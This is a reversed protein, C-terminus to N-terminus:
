ARKRRWWVVAAWIFLVIPAVIVGFFILATFQAAPVELKPDKDESKRLSIQSDDRTLWAVANGHLDQSRGFPFLSNAMMSTSGFVVLRSKSSANESVAALTLPGKKDSGDLKVVGTAIAKFDTEGWASPSSKVLWETKWGTSEAPATVALPRSIAFPTPDKLDKVIPQATNYALGLPYEPPLGAPKSLPDLILANEVKIGYDGLFKNWEPNRDAGKPDTDLTVYLSGGNKLYEGLTKMEGEFFPRTPGFVAVIACAPDVKSETQLNIEKWTNGLKEILDRANSLGMEGSDQLSREGHQSTYCFVKAVSKELKLLENTIKTEDPNEVPVMRGKYYIVLTNETRVNASRARQAEKAVDVYETTVKRGSTQYNALLTKIAEWHNPRGFLSLKLEDGLASVAKKSQDTLSHKQSRTFDFSKPFKTAIFNLTVLLCIVLITTLGSAFRLMKDGRIEEASLFQSRKTKEKPTLLAGLLSLFLLGGFLGIAIKSDSFALLTYALAVLSLFSSILFAPLFSPKLFKM